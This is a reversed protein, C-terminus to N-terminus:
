RGVQKEITRKDFNVWLGARGERIWDTFDSHNRFDRILDLENSYFCRYQLTDVGVGQTDYSCYPGHAKTNSSM